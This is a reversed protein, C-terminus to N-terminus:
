MSPWKSDDDEVEENSTNSGIDNSTIADDSSIVDRPKFEDKEKIPEEETINNNGNEYSKSNEFDGNGVHGNNELYFSYFNYLLFSKIYSM